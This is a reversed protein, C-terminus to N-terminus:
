RTVEELIIRFCVPGFYLAAVIIVGWCFWGLLDIQREMDEEWSGHEIYNRFKKVM